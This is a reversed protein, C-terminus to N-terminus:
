VLLVINKPLLKKTIRAYALHEGKVDGRKVKGKRAHVKHQHYTKLVKYPNRVTWGLQKRFIYIIIQELGPENPESTSLSKFDQVKFKQVYFLYSDHNNVFITNNCIGYTNYASHRTIAYVIENKRM